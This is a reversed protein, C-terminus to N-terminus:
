TLQKLLWEREIIAPMHTIEEILKKKKDSKKEWGVKIVKDLKKLFNYYMEKQADSIGSRRVKQLMAKMRFELLDDQTEFYIKILLVDAQISYNQNEFLKYNLKELSADYNKLAFDYEAYNLNYFEHSFRTGGILEPPHAKLIKEVVEMDNLRLGVTTILRLSESRIKGESYLYGGKLHEILQDYLQRLYEEKGYKKYLVSTFSRLLALLNSYQEFDIEQKHTKVLQEFELYFPENEPNLILNYALYQIRIRPEWSIYNNEVMVLIQRTFDLISHDEITSLKNQHVFASSLLLRHLIFFADLYQHVTILNVDDRNSNYGAQFEHVELELFFRDLYFRDDKQIAGAFWKKASEVTQWFREELGHKRYFKALPLNLNSENTQKELEIEFLFRRLLGVLNSTLTDIPNKGNDQFPKNPFLLASVKRKDLEPSEEDAGHEMIHDFLRIIEHISLGYTFFPSNLFQRFRKIEGPDLRALIELLKRNLM